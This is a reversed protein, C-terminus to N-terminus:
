LAAGWVTEPVDILGREYRAAPSRDDKLFLPADLDAIDCLQALLFAPAMALSSGFMSGVMVGLGLERAHKAIMLGETLGGCKDLKINVVDYRGVLLPLDDLTLASEDAALPVTRRFGDLDADRGRALPQEILGVGLESMATELSRLNDATYGQNADVGLWVDPSALRVARVREVDLALDGDLKIKLSRVVGYRLAAAAMKAPTDVSLTFTTVCRRPPELGALQWVPTKAQQAELEWLACDVANRAGGPPILSRLALRDPCAEIAARARELRDVIAKTDDGLYYVGAAEARGRFGDRTLTVVVVEARDFVYGSIRVPAALTLPEIRYELHQRAM